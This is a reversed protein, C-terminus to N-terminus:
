SSEESTPKRAYASQWYAVSAPWVRRLANHIRDKAGKKWRRNAYIRHEELEFGLSTLIRATTAKPFGFTHDQGLGFRGTALTIVEGLPTVPNPMGMHLVGGPKLWRYINELAKVPERLHEIVHWFRVYDFSGDPYDVEGIAAQQLTELGRERRAFDVFAGSLEVGDVAWGLDRFAEMIEGSAAGVDLFRGDAPEGMRGHAAAVYERVSGSIEVSRPNTEGYGAYYERMSEADAIPNVFLLGCGPCAVVQPHFAVGTGKRGKPRFDTGDCFPCRKFYQYRYRTELM